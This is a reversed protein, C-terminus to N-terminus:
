IKMRLASYLSFSSSSNRESLLSQAGRQITLEKVIVGRLTKSIWM